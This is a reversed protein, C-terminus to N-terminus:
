LEGKEDATEEELIVRIQSIQTLLDGLYHMLSSKTVDSKKVPKHRECCDDKNVIEARSMCFGYEIRHFQKVGKVYYSKYSDCKLCRKAM